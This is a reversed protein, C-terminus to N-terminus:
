SVVGTKGSAKAMMVLATELAELEASKREIAEGLLRARGDLSKQRSRATLLQGRLADIEVRVENMEVETAVLKRLVHPLHQLGGAGAALGELESRAASLTSARREHQALRAELNKVMDSQAQALRLLRKQGGTM